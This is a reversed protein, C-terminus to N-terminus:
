QQFNKVNNKPAHIIIKLLPHHNWLELEVPNKKYADGEYADRPEFIAFFLCIKLM